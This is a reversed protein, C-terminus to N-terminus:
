SKSALCYIVRFNSEESNNVIRTPELYKYEDGTIEYPMPVLKGFVLRKLLKKGAMTKPMLGFSVAMKKLFKTLKGKFEDKSIEMFGFFQSKFGFDGFLSQLEACNYYSYSHPSPNFDELEKNATAVLVVGNSRLVRKCEAVFKKADPIYYIAEFLVVIDKSSDEYPMEQADFQRLNVKKGYYEIPVSLLTESYDGAEISNSVKSFIGLGQGTGCGVELVDKGQCFKSAWQYRHVMREVQEESVSDGSLETVTVFDDMLFEM